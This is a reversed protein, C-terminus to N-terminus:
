YTRADEELLSLSSPKYGSSWGQAGLASAQAIVSLQGAGAVPGPPSCLVDTCQLYGWREQMQFSPVQDEQHHLVRPFSRHLVRGM